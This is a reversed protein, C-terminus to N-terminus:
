KNWKRKKPDYKGMWVGVFENVTLFDSNLRKDKKVVQVLAFDTVNEIM